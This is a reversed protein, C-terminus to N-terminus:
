SASRVLGLMARAGTVVDAQDAVSLATTGTGDPFRFSVLWAVLLGSNGALQSQEGLGYADAVFRLTVDGVELSEAYSVFEGVSQLVQTPTTM